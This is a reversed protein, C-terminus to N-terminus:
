RAPTFNLQAAKLPAAHALRWACVAFLGASIDMTLGYALAFALHHALLHAAPGPALEGLRWDAARRVAWDFVLLAAAAGTAIPVSVPVHPLELPLGVLIHPSTYAVLSLGFIPTAWAHALAVLRNEGPRGAALALRKAEGISWRADAWVRWAFLVGIAVAPGALAGALLAAFVPGAFAALDARLPRQLAVYAGLAALALLAFPPAVLAAAGILLAAILALATRGLIIRRASAM